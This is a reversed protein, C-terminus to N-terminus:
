TWGEREREVEMLGEFVRELDVLMDREFERETGGEWSGGEWRL